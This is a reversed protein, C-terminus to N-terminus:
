GRYGHHYGGEDNHYREISADWPAKGFNGFNILSKLTM